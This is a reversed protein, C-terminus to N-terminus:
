EVGNLKEQIEADPTAPLHLGAFDPRGEDLKDGVDADIQSINEELAAGFIHQFLQFFEEYEVQGDGDKDMRNFTKRIRAEPIDGISSRIFAGLERVNIKGNHDADYAEFAPWAADPHVALLAPQGEDVKSRMLRASRMLIYQLSTLFSLKM